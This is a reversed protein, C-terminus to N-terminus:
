TTALTRYAFDRGGRMHIRNHLIFTLTFFVTGLSLLGFYPLAIFSDIILKNSFQYLRHIFQRLPIVFYSELLKPWSKVIKRSRLVAASGPLSHVEATYTISCAFCPNKYAAIPAFLLALCCRTTSALQTM